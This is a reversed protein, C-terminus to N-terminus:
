EHRRLELTQLALSERAALAAIEPAVAANRGKVNRMTAFVQFKKRALTEAILRGFGSSAGTILVVQQPTPM